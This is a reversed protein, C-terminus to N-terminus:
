GSLPLCLRLCPCSELPFPAAIRHHSREWQGTSTRKVDPATFILAWHTPPHEAENMILSICISVIFYSKGGTWRTSCCLSGYCGAEASFHPALSTRLVGRHWALPFLAKLDEHCRAPDLPQCRSSTLICTRPRWGASAPPYSPAPGPLRHNPGGLHNTSTSGM